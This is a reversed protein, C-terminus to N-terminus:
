CLYHGASVAMGPQSRSFAKASRVTKRYLISPSRAQLSTVKGLDSFRSKAQLVEPLTTFLM